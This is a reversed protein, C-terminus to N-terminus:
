HFLNFYTCIKTILDEYKIRQKTEFINTKRQIHKNVKHRLLLIAANKM